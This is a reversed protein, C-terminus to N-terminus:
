CSKCIHFCLVMRGAPGFAPNNHFSHAIMFSDRVGLSYRALTSCPCFVLALIQLLKSASIRMSHKVQVHIPVTLHLEPTTITVCDYSTSSRLCLSNMADACYIIHKSYNYLVHNGCVQVVAKWYEHTGTGTLTIVEGSRWYSSPDSYTWRLHCSYCSPPISESFNLSYFLM